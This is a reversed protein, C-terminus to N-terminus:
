ATVQCHLSTSTECWDYGKNGSRADFYGTAVLEAAWWSTSLVLRVDIAQAGAVLSEFTTSRIIFATNGEIQLEFDVEGDFPVSPWSVM